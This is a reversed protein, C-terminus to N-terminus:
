AEPVKYQIRAATYQRGDPKGTDEAITVIAGANEFVEKWWAAQEQILHSNRGDPLMLQAPSTAIHHFGVKATLGVIHAVVEDIEEHPIHELVDTSVVADYKKHKIKDIGPIAPDYEFVKLDPRMGRLGQGLYGSGSGYDLVTRVGMNSIHSLVLGAHHRGSTGYSTNAHHKKYFAILEDSM